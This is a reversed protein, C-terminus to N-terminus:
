GIPCPEGDPRRARSGPDHGSGRRSPPLVLRGLRHGFGGSDAHRRPACVVLRPGGHSGARHEALAVQLQAAGDRVAADARAAADKQAGAGRPGGHCHGRCVHCAHYGGAVAAPRRCVAERSHVRRDVGHLGAAPRQLEDAARGSDDDAPRPPERDRAHGHRRSDRLRVVVAASHVVQREPGRSGDAQGDLYAARAMYGCDELVAIFFFLILIQPLFVLVSGVGGIVGDVLLSELPGEPLREALMDGFGGIVADIAKMPPEAAVFVSSFVLLM